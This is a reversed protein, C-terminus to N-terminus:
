NFEKPKIPRNMLQEIAYSVSIKQSVIKEIVECIPASINNKTIIKEIAQATNIGEITGIKKSISVIDEGKAIAIGAQYNRSQRSVCSLMIDGVGSLGYITETRGGMFYIIQAIEHIGRTILAARANEGLDMGDCVGSALALINKLAGACGVGIIDDSPYLRLHGRSLNQALEQAVALEACAITLATPKKQILENAFSPGSIIALQPNTLFEKAVLHSFLGSVAEIGKTAIVIIRYHNLTQAHKQFFERLNIMPLCVIAYEGLYNLDAQSFSKISINKSIKTQPFYKQNIQSENIEQAQKLSRTYLTLQTQEDYLCAVLATGWAGAGIIDIKM